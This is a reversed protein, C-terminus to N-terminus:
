YELLRGYDNWEGYMEGAKTKEVLRRLATEYSNTDLKRYFAVNYMRVRQYLPPFKKFKSYARAEKLAAVIELDEKYRMSPLCKMGEKTMLGLKMLRRVREKNLETWPSNKKRPSFRQLNTGNVSKLVSDIWGFCLAEEVADLYTFSIGDPKKRPANVWCESETKSHNLLWERFEARCHIDLVNKTQDM